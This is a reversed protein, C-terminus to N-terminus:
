ARTRYGLDLVWGTGEESVVLNIESRNEQRGETELHLLFSVLFFPEFAAVSQRTTCPEQHQLHCFRPSLLCLRLDPMIIPLVSRLILLFVSV